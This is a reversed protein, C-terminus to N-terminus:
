VPLIVDIRHHETELIAPLREIHYHSESYGVSRTGKAINPYKKFLIKNYKPKFEHVFKAELENTLEEARQELFPTMIFEGIDDNSVTHLIPDTLSCNEKTISHESCGVIDLMFLAIEYSNKSALENIPDEMTMIKQVKEHGTLRDWIDQSFAQGIYHVKYDLYEKINGSIEAKLTGNLHEYIIKQATYWVIFNNDEDYLKIAGVNNFPEVADHEKTYFQLQVSLNKDKPVFDNMSFDISCILPSSETGDTIEFSIIENSITVNKMYILPRQIIFYITCPRFLDQVVGEEKLFEFEYASVIPYNTRAAITINKIYDNKM